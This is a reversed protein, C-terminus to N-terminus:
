LRWDGHDRVRNARATAHTLVPNLGALVGFVLLAKIGRTDLSENIVISAAVAASAVVSAPVLYHLRDLTTPMFAVGALSLLTTVAALGLLADVVLGKLAV